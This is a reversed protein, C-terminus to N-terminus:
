YEGGYTQQMLNIAIITGFWAVQQVAVSAIVVLILSALGFGAMTGIVACILVSIGHTIMLQILSFRIGALVGGAVVVAIILVFALM